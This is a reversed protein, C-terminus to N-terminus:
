NILLELTLHLPAKLIIPHFQFDVLTFVLNSLELPRIRINKGITKSILPLGPAFYESIGYCVSMNLQKNNSDNFVCVNCLSSTLYLINGFCTYPVSSITIEEEDNSMIPFDIKEYLGLLLRVRHSCEVISFPTNSSLTLTGGDNYKVDINSPFIAKLDYVLEDKDYKTRDTFYFTLDENYINFKIYDTKTTIMMTSITNIGMIRFYVDDALLPLQSNFNITGYNKSDTSYLNFM